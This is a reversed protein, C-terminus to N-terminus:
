TYVHICCGIAGYYNPIEAIEPIALAPRSIASYVKLLNGFPCMGSTRERIKCALPSSSAESGTWPDALDGHERPIVERRLNDILCLRPATEIELRVYM